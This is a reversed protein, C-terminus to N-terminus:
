RVGLGCALGVHPLAPAGQAIGLSQQLLRSQMSVTQRLGAAPQGLPWTFHPPDQQGATALPAGVQALPWHPTTQLPPKWTQAPWHTLL